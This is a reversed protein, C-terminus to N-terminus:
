LVHQAHQIQVEVLPMWLPYEKLTWSEVEPDSLVKAPGVFGQGGRPLGCKPEPHLQFDM